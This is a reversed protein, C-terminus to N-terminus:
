NNKKILAIMAFLRGRMKLYAKIETMGRREPYRMKVYVVENGKIAKECISCQPTIKFM